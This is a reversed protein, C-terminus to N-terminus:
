NEQKTTQGRLGALETVIQRIRQCSAKRHHLVEFPLSVIQKLEDRLASEVMKSSHSSTPMM